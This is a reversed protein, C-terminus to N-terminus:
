FKKVDTKNMCPALQSLTIMSASFPSFSQLDKEYSGRSGSAFLTATSNSLILTFAYAFFCFVLASSSFSFNSIASFSPSGPDYNSAYFDLKDIALATAAKATVVPTTYVPIM